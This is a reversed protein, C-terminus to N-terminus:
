DTEHESFKAIGDTYGKRKLPPDSREQPNCEPCWYPKDQRYCVTCFPIRMNPDRQRLARIETDPHKMRSKGKGTCSQAFVRM